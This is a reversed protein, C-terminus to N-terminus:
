DVMDYVGGHSEGTGYVKSSYSPRTNDEEQINLIPIDKLAWVMRQKAFRLSGGVVGGCCGYEEQIGKYVDHTATHRAEIDRMEIYFLVGYSLFVSRLSTSNLAQGSIVPRASMKRSAVVEAMRMMHELKRWNNAALILFGCCGMLPSLRPWVTLMTGLLLLFLVVLGWNSLLTIYVVLLPNTHVVSLVLLVAENTAALIVAMNLVWLIAISATLGEKVCDTKASNDPTAEGHGTVLVSMLIRNEMTMRYQTLAQVLRLRGVFAAVALSLTIVLLLAHSITKLLRSLSLSTVDGSSVYHDSMYSSSLSTSEAAVLIIYLTKLFVNKSVSSHDDFTLNTAM